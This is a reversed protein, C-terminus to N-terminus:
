AGQAHALSIETFPYAKDKVLRTFAKGTSEEDTIVAVFVGEDVGSYEYVKGNQFQVVLKEEGLKYGLSAIMSSGPIPIMKM